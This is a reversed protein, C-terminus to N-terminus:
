PCSFGGGALADNLYAAGKDRYEEVFRSAQELEKPTLSVGCSAHVQRAIEAKRLVPTPKALVARVASLTSGHAAASLGVVLAVAIFERM